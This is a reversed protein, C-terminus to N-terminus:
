SILSTVTVETRTEIEAKIDDFLSINVDLDGCIFINANWMNVNLLM